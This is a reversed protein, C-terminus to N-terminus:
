TQMWIYADVRTDTPNAANGTVQIRLYPMPSPSLSYVHVVEDAISSAVTAGANPEIFNGATNDFSQQIQVLIDPTGGASTAQIWLGWDEYEAIAFGNNSSDIRSEVSATGNVLENNFVRWLAWHALGDGGTARADTTILVANTTPAAM